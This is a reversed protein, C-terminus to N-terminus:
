PRRDPHDHRKQSAHPDTPTPAATASPEAPPSAATGTLMALDACETTILCAACVAAPEVLADVRAKRSRAAAYTTEWGTSDGTRDKCAGDALARAMDRALVERSIGRVTLMRLRPTPWVRQITVTDPQRPDPGFDVRVQDLLDARAHSAQRETPYAGAM